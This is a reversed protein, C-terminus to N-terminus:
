IRGVNLDNLDNALVGCNLLHMLQHLLVPGHNLFALRHCQIRPKGGAISTLQRGDGGKGVANALVICRNTRRQFRWPAITLGFPLQAPKFRHQELLVKDDDIFQAKDGERLLACLHEKAEDALAVPAARQQNRGVQGKGVPCLDELVFPQETGQEVPQGM